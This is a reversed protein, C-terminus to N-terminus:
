RSLIDAIKRVGEPGPLRNSGTMLFFAKKASAKHSLMLAGTVRGTKKHLVIDHKEANQLSFGMIQGQWHLWDSFYENTCSIESTSGVASVAIVDKDSLYSTLLAIYSALEKDQACFNIIQRKNPLNKSHYPICEVQTFGQSGYLMSLHKMAEVRVRANGKLKTSYLDALNKANDFYSHDKNVASKGEEIVQINQHLMGSGPNTTLFHLPPLSDNFFYLYPEPCHDMQFIKNLLLSYRAKSNVWGKWMEECHDFYRQDDM